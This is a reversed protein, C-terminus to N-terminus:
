LKDPGAIKVDRRRQSLNVLYFFGVFYLVELGQM